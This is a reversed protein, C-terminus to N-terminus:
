QQRRFPLYMHPTFAPAAAGKGGHAAYFSAVAAELAPRDDLAMNAVVDHADLPAAQMSLRCRDVGFPHEIFLPAGDQALQEHQYRWAASFPPRSASQAHETPAFGLSRLYTDTM